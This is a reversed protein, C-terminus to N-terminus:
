DPQEQPIFKLVVSEFHAILEHKPFKKIAYSWSVESPTLEFVTEGIEYLGTSREAMIAGTAGILM